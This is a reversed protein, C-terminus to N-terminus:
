VSQGTVWIRIGPALIVLGLIIIVIIVIPIVSYYDFICSSQNTPNTRSAGGCNDDNVQSENREQDMTLASTWCKGTTSTTMEVIAKTDFQLKFISKTSVTFIYM